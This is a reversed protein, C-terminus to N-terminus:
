LKVSAAFSAAFKGQSLRTAKKRDNPKGMWLVAAVIPFRLPWRTENSIEQSLDQTTPGGFAGATKM